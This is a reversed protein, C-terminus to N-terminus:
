LTCTELLQSSSFCTHFLVLAVNLHFRLAIIFQKRVNLEKFHQTVTRLGVRDRQLM